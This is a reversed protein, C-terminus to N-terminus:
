SAMLGHLLSFIAWHITLDMGDLQVASGQYLYKNTNTIDHMHPFSAICM